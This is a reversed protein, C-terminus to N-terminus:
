LSITGSTSWSRLSLAHGRQAIRMVSGSAASKGTECFHDYAADYSNEPLLKTSRLNGIDVRRPISWMPELQLTDGIVLAKKSLAFSACAVEPLVQGAEDVILLDAFDYLYDAVYGDGEHRSGKMEQPLMFFTSVICPTLKMRRRWRKEMAVRGNKTKEKDIKPLLQQMDMLWRGEWYHTALLFITFRIRTDVIADCEALSLHEASEMMGLPTLASRWDALREKGLQLLDEARQLRIKQEELMHDLQNVIAKIRAEIQEISQWEDQSRSPPWADKLFLRALRMRKKAVPALWSFLSYFISEQALYDEWGEKLKGFAHKEDETMALQQRRDALGSDPDDGLEARVAKRVVTLAPWANEISKLKGAEKELAEKLATVINGVSMREPAIEPFSRAGAQLYAPKAAAVYDASEIEEFFSHTQYKDANKTEKDFSAFYAGFSKIDPLWRGVFPGTGNSFDKGFADIINTVAQNNTSAALIVPPEGGKLAAKAWSSAVVSLLLTTKGTGPPGNIALIEGAEALLLHALSDRQAQALPFNDSPHGLRASFGANAPLCPQIESSDASAYKDFLPASPNNDRIHDYLSVIHRRTGKTSEEKVLYGYEAMEFRDEGTPWGQGVHEFLHECAALYRSWQNNFDSEASQDEEGCVIIPAVNKTLFEDQDAVTGIVFSGRELPELIDRPVVTHSSPYLRGDSSLRARTVIPTVIEPVGSRRQQEGHEVRSLYVKPRIVVEVTRVTDAEGNFYKKIVVNSVRGNAVEQKALEVFGKVDKTQFGGRGLEADALSNRWYRAHAISSEEM